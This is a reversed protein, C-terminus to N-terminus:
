MTICPATVPEEETHSSLSLGVQPNLRLTSVSRITRERRGHRSRRSRRNRRNRKNRM